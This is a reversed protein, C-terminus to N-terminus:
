NRSHKYIDSKQLVKTMTDHTYFLWKYCNKGFILHDTNISFYYLMFLQIVTKTLLIWVMQNREIEWLIPCTLTPKRRHFENIKGVNILYLIGTFIYSSGIM